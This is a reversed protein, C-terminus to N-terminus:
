SHGKAMKNLEKKLDDRIEKAALIKEGKDVTAIEINIDCKNPDVEKKKTFSRLYRKSEGHLINFRNDKFIVFDGEYEVYQVGEIELKKGTEYKLEYIMSKGGELLFPWVEEPAARIIRYYLTLM